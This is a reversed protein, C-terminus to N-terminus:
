SPSVRVFPNEQTNFTPSEAWNYMTALDWSGKLDRFGLCGM